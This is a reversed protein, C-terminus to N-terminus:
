WLPHEVLQVIADNRFPHMEKDRRTDRRTQTFVRGINLVRSKNTKQEGKEEKKNLNLKGQKEMVIKQIM